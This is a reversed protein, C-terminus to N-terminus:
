HENACYFVLTTDKDAPLDAPTVADFQVWKAGPLHGKAWRDKQNNDVLALKLAGSKAQEMKAAVQDVTLEGFAHAPAASGSGAASAAAPDKKCGSAALAGALLAITVATMSKTM